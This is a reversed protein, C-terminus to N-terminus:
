KIEKAKVETFRHGMKIDRVGVVEYLQEQYKIRHKISMAPYFRMVIKTEQEGQIQENVYSENGISPTISAWFIGVVVWNGIVAGYADRDEQLELVEIRRNLEGISYM